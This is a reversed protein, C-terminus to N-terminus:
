TTSWGVESKLSSSNGIGRVTSNTPSLSHLLIWLHSELIQLRHSGVHTTDTVLPPFHFAPGVIRIPFEQPKFPFCLATLTVISERIRREITLIRVAERSYTASETNVLYRTIHRARTTIKSSVLLTRSSPNQQVINKLVTNAHRSRKNQLRGTAEVHYLLSLSSKM